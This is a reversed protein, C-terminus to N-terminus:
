IFSYVGFISFLCGGCIWVFCDKVKQFPKEEWNDSTTRTRSVSGVEEWAQVKRTPSFQCTFLSCCYLFGFIIFDLFWFQEMQLSSICAHHCCCKLVCKPYINQWGWRLNVTKETIPEIWIDISKELWTRQKRERQWSVFTVRRVLVTIEQLIESDQKEDEM